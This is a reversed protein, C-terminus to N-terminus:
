LIMDLICSYNYVHLFRLVLIYIFTNNRACVVCAVGARARVSARVCVYVCVCVCIIIGTLQVKNGNYFPDKSRPAHLTM